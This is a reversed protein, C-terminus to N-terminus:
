PEAVSFGNARGNGIPAARPGAVQDAGTPDAPGTATVKPPGRRGCTGPTCWWASTPHPSRASQRITLRSLVSPRVCARVPAPVIWFVRVHVCARACECVCRGLSQGALRRGRLRLWSVLPAARPAGGCHPGRRAIGSPARPRRRTRPPLTPRKWRRRGCGTRARNGSRPPARTLRARVM